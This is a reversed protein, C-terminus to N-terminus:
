RPPTRRAVLTVEVEVQRSVGAVPPLMPFPTRDLVTHAAIRLEDGTAEVSTIQLEFRGPTDRVRVEGQVSGTAPDGEATVEIIPYKKTYLYHSHRLHGNRVGLGTDIRNAALTGNGRLRGGAVTVQGAIVPLRGRVWLLCFAKARFGVETRETDVTYTGDPATPLSSQSDDPRIIETM